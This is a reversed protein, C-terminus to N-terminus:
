KNVQKWEYYKKDWDRYVSYDYGIDLSNLMEKLETIKREAEKNNLVYAEYKLEFYKEKYKQTVASRISSGEKGESKMQAIVKKAHIIYGNDLANILDSNKYVATDKKETPESPGKTEQNYVSDIAKIVTEKEFGKTELEGRIDDLKDIEGKQRAQSAQKIREDDKLISQIGRQIVDDTYGDAQLRSYIKDYTKKDSKDLADVLSKYKNTVKYGSALHEDAFANYTAEFARMVNSIPVGTFSSITRAGAYFSNYLSKKTETPSMKEGKAEKEAKKRNYNLFYTVSKYANKIGDFTLPTVDDFGSLFQMIINLYPVNNFINLGDVIAGDLGFLQQSLKEAYTEDEDKDRGARVLASVMEAMLQSAIIVTFTKMAKKIAPRKDKVNHVDIMARMAMNYCKSQESFFTLLSGATFADGRRMAQPRHFVTDVVQSDDVVKSLRKGVEKYFEETGSKLNTQDAVQLEIANWLYGWTVEDAKGALWLSGEKLKELRTDNGLLLSEMGRGIDTDFFGLAKWAAIPSYKKALEISPTRFAAKTLYKGEVMTAARIFATPQQAVVSLNFGVMSTKATSILRKALEDQRARDSGNIDKILQTFFKISNETFKAELTNRVSRKNDKYNFWRMADSLPATFANYAIMDATHEKWVDFVDRIVIPNSAGEKLSKTFSMNKIAWFSSSKNDKDSTPLFDKLAFIPYYDKETYGDYLWMKQTVENGLKGCVDALYKQLKDAVAKQEPTLISIINDLEGKSFVVPAFDKESINRKSDEHKKLVAKDSVIGGKEDYLHATTKERNMTLYLSMIQGVTLRVAGGKSDKFTHLKSGERWENFDIGETAGEFFKMAKFTNDVRSNFGERLNELIVSQATDGLLHFYTFSDMAGWFLGDAALSSFVRQNLPKNGNAIFSNAIDSIFMTQAGAHTRNINQITHKITKVVNDLVTLEELSMDYIRSPITNDQTFKNFMDVIASPILSDDVATTRQLVANLTVKWSAVKVDHKITKGKYLTGKEYDIANIFRIVSEKLETPVSYGQKPKSLWKVLDSSNKEISELHKRREATAKREAKYEKLKEKGLRREEKVKERLERKAQQYKEIRADYEKKLRAMDRLRREHQKDAFTKYVPAEFFMGTIKTTLNEIIEDKYYELESYDKERLNVLADALVMPMDLENTDAPFFHPYADSLESWAAELRMADNAYITSGFVEKAFSTERLRNWETKQEESLSFRYTKLYNLAQQNDGPIVGDMYRAYLEESMKTIDNRFGKADLEKKHYKSYIEMLMDSFDSVAITLGTENKIKRAIRRVGKEDLELGHTLKLQKELTQVTENLRAIVKENQENSRVLDSYRDSYRIDNDETPNLNDISKIQNPYFAIFEENSNNVGDFGLSILRERANIGANNQGMFMKLNKFGTGEDAPNTINLYYASVNAGYGKADLDWPSFFMGQIDMNKRGKTIDFVTFQESTGHYVVLLNGDEDRVKSDKFFEIQEKTLKRGTSDRDSRKIENESNEKVIEGSKELTKSDTVAGVLAKDWIEQLQTTDNMIATLWEYEASIKDVGKFAEKISRVFGEIWEKIYEFLTKNQKALEQIANTDKLMNQCSEAVVEELAQDYTLERANEKNNRAAEQRAVVLADIAERGGAGEYKELLFNKLTQYGEENRSRIFHTLEHGATQVISYDGKLNVHIENNKADYWGNYSSDEDSFVVFNVGTAKAVNGLASIAWSGIDGFQGLEGSQRISGEGLQVGEKTSLAEKFKETGLQYVKEKVEQSLSNAYEPKQYQEFFHVPTGEAAAKYYSDFASIYETLNEARAAQAVFYRATDFDYDKANNYISEVDANVFNAESVPITEANTLYFQKIGDQEIMRIAHAEGGDVEVTPQTFEKIREPKKVEQRTQESTSKQTKSYMDEANAEAMKGLNSKERGEIAKYLSSSEDIYNLAKSYSEAKDARKLAEGGIEKAYEMGRQAFDTGKIQEGVSKYDVTDQRLAGIASAGVGGLVGQLAGGAGAQIVQSTLDKIALKKAEEETKGESIYHESLRKFNSFDGNAITDYAIDAIETFTEESANTLASKAINGLATKLGKVSFLNKISKESLGKFQAISVSEFFTEFIGSMLGTALVSKPDLGREAADLMSEAAASSGIIAGGVVPLGGGLAASAASDLLSVTTSYVFDFLDIGHWMADHEEMVTDRIKGSIQTPAFYPSNVDVGFVDNNYDELVQKLAVIKAPTYAVSGITSLVQHKKATEGTKELTAEMEKRNKERQAYQSLLEWEPIDKINEEAEKMEQFASLSDSTTSYNKDVLGMLMQQDAIGSHKQKAEVYRDIDAKQEDTLKNYKNEKIDQEFIERIRQTDAKNRNIFEMNRKYEEEKADASEKDHVNYRNLINKIKGGHEKKYDKLEQKNEQILDSYEDYDGVSARYVNYSSKSPFQEIFQREARHASSLDSLASQQKDLSSLLNDLDSKTKNDLTNRAAYNQIKRVSDIYSTNYERAADFNYTGSKYVNDYSRNLGELDLSLGKDPYRLRDIAAFEDNQKRKKKRLEDLEKFDM